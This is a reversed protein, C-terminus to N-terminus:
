AHVGLEGALFNQGRFIKNNLFITGGIGTGVILFAANQYNKGHGYIMEAIGACNADNEVFVPINFKSAILFKFNIKERELIASIGSVEGTKPNIIGPM